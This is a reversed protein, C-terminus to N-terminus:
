PRGGDFTEESLRYLQLTRFSGRSALMGNGAVAWVAGDWAFVSSVTVSNIGFAHATVRQWGHGDTRWVQASEEQLDARALVNAVTAVWLQDDLPFLRAVFQAPDGLGSPMAAGPGVELQWAGPDVTSLLQLGSFNFASLWLRDAWGALDSIQANGGADGDLLLRPEQGSALVALRAGYDETGNLGLYLASTGGLTVPRIVTVSSSLPHGNAHTGLFSRPVVASFHTGDDSAWVEAGDRLNLGTAVYLRESDVALAPIAKNWPQGFGPEDAGQRLAFTAGTTLSDCGVTDDGLASEGSRVTLSNTDNDLVELVTPADPHVAADDLTAGRLAGPQWTGAVTLRATPQDCGDVAVIALSPDADADAAIVPTFTAGDFRWLEAGTSDRRNGQVGASLGIWLQGRWVALAGLLSNTRASTPLSLKEVTGSQLRFLQAGTVDNRVLLYQAGEWAATAVVEANDPDGFGPDGVPVPL